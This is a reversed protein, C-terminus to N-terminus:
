EKIRHGEIVQIERFRINNSRLFRRIKRWEDLTTDEERVILRWKSDVTM